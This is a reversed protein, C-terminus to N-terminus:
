YGRLLPTIRRVAVRRNEREPAQTAIRLHNEGYGQVVMNEAPVDFYESFALAVSEARRDSLLLNYGAAGVADTYGEILFVETPDIEILARMVQGLQGFVEAQSQAIAASGTEFTIGSLTIEPALARVPQIDRVQRLSFSRGLDVRDAALLVTRLTETDTAAFADQGVTVPQPLDALVVPASSRTDDILVHERGDPDIRLRRLARGSTDRITTIRTGDARTVVTRTSGDAFRETRVESGPQRLLADDDRLVDYSGDEDVVIIRDGTNAAVRQGNALIAGVVAAGLLVLGARELDSPGSDAEASAGTTGRWDEFDQASARVSDETIAELTVDAGAGAEADRAPDEGLALVTDPTIADVCIVAGDAGITEALCSQGAGTDAALAAAAEAEATAAEREAEATAEAEAALTAEAEAAEAAIEAQAAADEAVAMAAAAEAALEAEVALQEAALAEAECLRIHDSCALPDTIGAEACIEEPTPDVTEVTPAQVDSEGAPEVEACTQARIQAPQLLAIALVVATTSRLIHPTM